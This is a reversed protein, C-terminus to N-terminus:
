TLGAQLRTIDLPAQANMEMIMKMIPLMQGSLGAHGERLMEGTFVGSNTGVSQSGRQGLKNLFPVLSQEIQPIFQNAANPNILPRRKLQELYGFLDKRKKEGWSQGGLLSLLGGLGQSGLTLWPNPAALKMPLINQYSQGRANYEENTM